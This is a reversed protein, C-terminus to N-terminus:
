RRRRSTAARTTPIPRPRIVRSSTPSRARRRRRDDAPESVGQGLVGAEDRGASGPVHGRVRDLRCARGRDPLVSKCEPKKPDFNSDDCPEISRPCRPSSRRIPFRSRRALRRDDAGAGEKFDVTLKYKGADGRGPAYIRVFYKGKANEVTATRIRSRSRKGAKKSTVIPTNWEDFVDFALQLGPRPPQWQLKFDLTGVRRTPCSSRRGTSAIM